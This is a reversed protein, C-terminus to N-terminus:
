PQPVWARPIPRSGLQQAIWADSSDWDTMGEHTVHHYEVNPLARYLGDLWEPGGIAGPDGCALRTRASVRSAHHLPEFYQLTRAIAGERAPQFRIEDNLEEIPYAESRARHDMARHFMLGNVHLASVLEPRRAAAMLALDDGVVAVRSRDVQPLSTIFELGRICDAVIGRYIYTAPDDIGLTLLGPYAAAFPTDARRQGRHMLVMTVYRQRDEWTPPNNVSGYRPMTIHAPFTGEGKPISLYGFIRYPGISTLEVEYNTCFEADRRPYHAIEAAAPTAALEADVGDWFAAFDAPANTM